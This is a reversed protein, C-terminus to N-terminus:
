QKEHPKEARYEILDEVQLSTLRCITNLTDLTISGGTRLKQLTSESLLKENRLRTTNYGAAKLKEIVDKYIIM